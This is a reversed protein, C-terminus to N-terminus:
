RKVTRGRYTGLNRYHIQRIAVVDAGVQELPVQGLAGALDRDMGGGALDRVAVEELQGVGGGAPEEIESDAALLPHQDSAVVRGTPDGCEEARDADPGNGDRDVRQELPAVVVDM